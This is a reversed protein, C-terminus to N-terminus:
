GDDLIREAIRSSAEEKAKISALADADGAQARRELHEMKQEHDPPLADVIEASMDDALRNRRGRNDELLAESVAQKAARRLRPSLRLDELEDDRLQTGRQAARKIAGRVDHNKWKRYLDRKM